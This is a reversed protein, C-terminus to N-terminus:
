KGKALKKKKEMLRKSAERKVQKGEEAKKYLVRQRKTMLM